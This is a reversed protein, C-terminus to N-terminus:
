RICEELEAVAKMEADYVRLISEKLGGLLVPIKGAPAPFGKKAGALIEDLRQNIDLMRKLAGEEQEEFIRNKRALLERTERLEPAWDPLAACAVESWLRACERYQASVEELRPQRLLAAAETLFSAYMSRFASGGTVGFEIFIYAHPGSLRPMIMLEMEFSVIAAPDTGEGIRPVKMLMPMTMGPRSVRWVVAMGGVHAIEELRFGDVIVGPEHLPKVM